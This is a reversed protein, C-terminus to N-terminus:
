QRARQHCRAGDPVADLPRDGVRRERIRGVAARRQDAAREAPPLRGRQHGLWPTPGTPTASTAARSTRRSAGASSTRRAPATRDDRQARPREPEGQALGPAGAAAPGDRRQRQGAGPRLHARAARRHEAGRGPLGGHRRRHQQPTRGAAPSLRGLRRVRRPLVSARRGGPHGEPRDLRQQARRLGPLAAPRRSVARHGRAPVARQSRRHRHQPPAPDAAAGHEARRDRPQLPLTSAPARGDTARQARQQPHLGPVRVGAREGVAPRRAASPRRPRAPRGAQAQEARSRDLRRARSRREPQRRQAPARPVAEPASLARNARLVPRPEAATATVLAAPRPM